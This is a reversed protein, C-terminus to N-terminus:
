GCNDNSGEAVIGAVAAAIQKTLHQRDASSSSMPLTVSLKLGLGSKSVVQKKKKKGAAPPFARNRRYDPTDLLRM